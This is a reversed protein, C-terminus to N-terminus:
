LGNIGTTKDSVKAHFELIREKIVDKTLLSIEKQVLDKTIDSLQHQIYMPMLKNCIADTKNIKWRKVIEQLTTRNIGLKKAAQQKNWGNEALCLLVVSKKLNDLQELKIGDAEEDKSCTTIKYQNLVMQNLHWLDALSCNFNLLEKQEGSENDTWIIKINQDAM